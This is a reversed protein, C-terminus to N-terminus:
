QTVAGMIHVAIQSPGACMRMVWMMDAPEIRIRSLDDVISLAKAEGILVAM